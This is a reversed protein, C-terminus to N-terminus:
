ENELEKKALRVDIDAKIERITDAMLVAGQMFANWRYENPGSGLAKCSRIVFGRYKKLGMNAAVARGHGDRRLQDMVKTHREQVMRETSIYCAHLLVGNPDYSACTNREDDTITFYGYPEHKINRAM